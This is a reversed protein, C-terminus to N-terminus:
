RGQAAKQEAYKDLTAQLEAKWKPDQAADIARQQWEMAKDLNSAEYCVRAMTELISADTGKTLEVAIEAAQRAVVPDRIPVNPKAVITWALSNMVAPDSRLPGHIMQDAYVYADKPNAQDILLMEFLRMAWPGYRKADIELLKNIAREAEVGDGADLAIRARNEARRTRQELEAKEKASKAAAPLDYTGALIQDLATTLGADMPHGIWAVKGAKDVIFAAPIGTRNNAHMWTTNMEGDDGDYAVRYAMADGQKTVFDRVRDIYAPYGDLPFAREWTSVGVVVVGKGSYKKEIESLHPISDKCPPCWTAWFEVVYVKGAEFAAVPDGKLWAGVKIAPAPDGWDLALKEVHTETLAKIQAAEDPQLGEPVKDQGLASGCALGVVCALLGRKM